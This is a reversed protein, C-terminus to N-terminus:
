AIYGPLPQQCHVAALTSPKIEEFEPKEAIELSKDTRVGPQIVM